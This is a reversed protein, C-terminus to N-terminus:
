PGMARLAFPPQESADWNLFHILVSDNTTARVEAPRWM